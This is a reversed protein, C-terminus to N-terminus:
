ADFLPSPPMRDSGNRDLRFSNANRTPTPRHRWTGAIWARLAAMVGGHSVVIVQQGQHRDALGAVVPAARSAVDVLSEGGPARHHWFEEIDLDAVATRYVEWPKGRLEGFCREEIGDVEVVPVGVEAAIEDATQRARRFRSCYLHSAEYQEALLRGADRAQRHGLETLPEHDHWTYRSALNATSEAHRVM